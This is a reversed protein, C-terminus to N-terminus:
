SILDETLLRRLRTLRGAASNDIERGEWRIRFGGMLESNVSHELKVPKGTRKRMRKAVIDLLGEAPEHATELIVRTIGSKADYINQFAKPLLPLISLRENNVATRITNATLESVYPIFATEAFIIEKTKVTHINLCFHKIEEAGSIVKDLFDMDHLISKLANKKVAVEYLATAYRMAIDPSSM